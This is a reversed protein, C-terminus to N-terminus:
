QLVMSEGPPLIRTRLNHASAARLFRREADPQEIYSPEHTAGYHIPVALRAGLTASAAAAQEPTMVMPQGSDTFRGLIQRMGSIPVFAVDFPGYARAIDWFGGHWITDGCHIIRKGGGNLIWSVQPSGLGDSAPVCWAAFEGGNRSLFLPEFMRVPQVNVTRNDFLRAVDEHVVLYGRDGLLDRLAAPALHDGHHHTALAFRRGADSTLEPGPADDEVSPARADIFVEVDGVRFAVGAWALRRVAIGSAVPAPQAAAAGAFGLTLGPFLARRNLLPAAFRM